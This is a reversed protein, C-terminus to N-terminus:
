QGLEARMDNWERGRFRGSMGEAVEEDSAGLLKAACVLMTRKAETENVLTAVESLEVLAGVLPMLDWRSKLEAVEAEVAERFWKRDEEWTM